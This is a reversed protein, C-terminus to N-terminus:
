ARGNAEDAVIRLMAALSFAENTTLYVQTRASGSELVVTVPPLHQSSTRAVTFRNPCPHRDELELDHHSL